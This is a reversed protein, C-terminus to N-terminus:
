FIQLKGRKYKFFCVAILANVNGESLIHLVVVMCVIEKYTQKTNTFIRNNQCLACGKQMIADLVSFSFPLMQRGYKYPNEPMQYWSIGTPSLFFQWKIHEKKMLGFNNKKRKVNTVKDKKTQKRKLFIFTIILLVSFNYFWKM